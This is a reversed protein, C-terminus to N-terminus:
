QHRGGPWCLFKVEKGLREEIIKKSKELEGKVRELYEQETEYGDQVEHNKRYDHVFRFLDTKWDDRFLNRIGKEKVYDLLATKLNEDPFYRKVELSKGYQYVPSGYDILKEDDRQLYPKKEPHSNWTMWIYGDGPHRFDVIRSSRFYWTHTMAHSQIDIIGESEMEEMERWSLFGTTQLHDTRSKKAWVDELNPRYEETPDVFEPSVFITAQFGYKKLLPYAYTWNDQYGDDFTLVVPNEPLVIGNKMYEYLHELSISHYNKRKLWKLQDEFLRYPCTLHNWQWGRDIVGVSHHMIVPVTRM